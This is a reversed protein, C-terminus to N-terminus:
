ALTEELVRNTRLSGRGWQANKLGMARQATLGVTTVPLGKGDIHLGSRMRGGARGATMIPIAEISHMQANGHESHAYVLTNDLLTRDGERVGGLKTVFRAWAEMARATFWAHMEQVGQADKGEEHTIIHHTSAVGQKITGAASYSYVMNFVRTQNCALAAVLLDAMDDHRRGVLQWDMGEPTPKPPVPKRCAEAKPPKELQLALRQELGRVSTYYEDLRARDAAGLRGRLKASDEMVASLVSKRLMLDPSPHFEPSNPDQFEPGFIRQYLAVPSVEPANLATPGRASYSHSRVGTATAEISPFRSAGGIADAITVDITESPLALKDTPAQGSRLIAAGTHHVFNPRGDSTISLNSYINIDRSVAALPALDGQTEYGAGVKTPLSDKNQIGLGWFWTGFRVPMPLGSALAEGNGDLFCDLLPLGVTVVTGGLLGRLASRRDFMRDM